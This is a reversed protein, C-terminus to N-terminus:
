NIVQPADLLDPIARRLRATHRPCIGVLQDGRMVLSHTTKAGCTQIRKEKKSWIILGCTIAHDRM